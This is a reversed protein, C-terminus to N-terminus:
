GVADTVKLIAFFISFAFWVVFAWAIAIAIPEIWKTLNALSYNVETTYQDSIKKSIKDLSATKEWVSLMQLFDSPFFQNNDDVSGLSEVIKEWSSIKVISDEIISEYVLNNTSRWVLKLSKIVWVWSWILSWLNSAIWSLIYNKYVPWILPLELAIYDLHARWKETSKYWMYLVFITFIFLFLIIYNNVIFNSTYILAKTSMPLTTNSNEFLPLIAPIVYIMVITVSALLFGFIIAPYTLTAKIESKLKHLKRLDESLREMSESLKWVTEWAEIISIEALGFIQPIKKMARSFSDWSSVYTRLEKIKEKFFENKVKNWVSDLTSSISVGGNLMVSLYEYFNFKDITSVKKFLHFQKQEQKKDQSKVVM